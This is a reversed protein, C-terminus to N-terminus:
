DVSKEDVPEGLFALAWDIKGRLRTNEETIIEIQSRLNDIENNRQDIVEKLDDIEEKLEDVKPDCENPSCKMILEIRKLFETYESLSLKGLNSENKSWELLEELSMGDFNM